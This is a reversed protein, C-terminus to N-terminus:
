LEMEKIEINPPPVFEEIGSNNKRMARWEDRMKQVKIKVDNDVPEWFSKYKYDIVKVEHPYYEVGNYSQKRTEIRVQTLYPTLTSYWFKRKPTEYFKVYPIKGDWIKVIEDFNIIYSADKQIDNFAHMSYNGADFACVFIETPIFVFYKRLGRGFPSESMNEEINSSSRVFLTRIEQGTLINNDVCYKTIKEVVQTISTMRDKRLSFIQLFLNQLNFKM